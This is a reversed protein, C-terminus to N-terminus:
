PGPALEANRKFEALARFPTSLSRSLELYVGFAKEYVVADADDPLVSQDARAILGAGHELSPFAGAQVGAIVAAGAASSDVPQDGLTVHGVPLRNVSAEIRRWLDSQAGGGACILRSIPIGLEVFADISQRQAFAVGEMVARVLHGVTHQLSLGFFVGRTEPNYRPNREGAMHPLFILGSAGAPVAEAHEVLEDYGLDPRGTARLCDRLWQLALGAAQQVGTAIWSDETAYCGTHVRADPDIVPADFAASVNGASGLVCLVADDSGVGHAVAATISDGAGTVVPTGAPLGTARAADKALGGAQSVTPVVDPLVSLRLELASVIEQSWAQERIDFLLTNSADTPDTALHGALHWRVYDKPLLVKAAGRFLEPEHKRLWLLKPATYAPVAPKGALAVLRQHGVRDSVERAEEVARLDAWIPCNGLVNGSADLLVPGNMQGSLGIAVVTVDPCAESIARLCATASRLWESPEQEIWGDRPAISRHAEISSALVRGEGDLLVAKSGGTGVDLGIMAEM